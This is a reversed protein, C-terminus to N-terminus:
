SWNLWTSPCFPKDIGMQEGGILLQRADLISPNGIMCSISQNISSTMPGVIVSARLCFVPLGHHQNILFAHGVVEACGMTHELNEVHM